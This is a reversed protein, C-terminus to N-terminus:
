AHRWRESQALILSEPEDVWLVCGFTTYGPECVVWILGAWLVGNWGDWFCVLVDCWWGCLWCGFLWLVGECACWLGLRRGRMRGLVLWGADGCVGRLACLLVLCGVGFILWCCLL